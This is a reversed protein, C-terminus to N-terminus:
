SNNYVMHQMLEDHSSMHSKFMSSPVRTITASPSPAVVGAPVVSHLHSNLITGQHQHTPHSSSSSSSSASIHHSPHPYLLENLSNISWAAGRPANEVGASGTSLSAGGAPRVITEAHPTSSASSNGIAASQPTHTHAPSVVHHSNSTTNNYFQHGISVPAQYYPSPHNNTQPPYGAFVSASQHEDQHNAASAAAAAM